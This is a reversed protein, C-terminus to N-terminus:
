RVQRAWPFQQSFSPHAHIPKGQCGWLISASLRFEAWKYFVAPDTLVNSFVTNNISLHDPQRPISRRGQYTVPTHTQTYTNTYTHTHKHTHTHVHTHARTQTYAHAHTHTNINYATFKSLIYKYLVHLRKPGANTLRELDENNDNKNSGGRTEGESKAKWRRCQSGWRM